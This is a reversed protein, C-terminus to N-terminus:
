LGLSKIIEEASKRPQDYLFPLASKLNTKVERAELINREEIRKITSKSIYGPTECNPCLVHDLQPNDKDPRIILESWCGACVYHKKTHTAINRPMAEVCPIYRM